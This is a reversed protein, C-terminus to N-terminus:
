QPYGPNEYLLRIESATLARNFIMVEDITGNFYDTSEWRGVQANNSNDISGGLTISSNGVLSGDFYLFMSNGSRQFVAAINHWNQDTVNSTLASSPILQNGSTGNGIRFLIGNYERARLVLQWGNPTGGTSSTKSAIGMRILSLDPLTISTKMWLSITFDGTKVDLNDQNGYNVFDDSGDFNLGYNSKGSVWTPGNTLTGTNGGRSDTATTGSGEDFKWYAVLGQTIPQWSEDAVQMGIEGIKFHIDTQQKKADKTTEIPWFLLAICILAIGLVVSM